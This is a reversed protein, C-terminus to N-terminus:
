KSRQPPLFEYMPKPCHHARQTAGLFSSIHNLLLDLVLSKNESSKNESFTFFTVQLVILIYSKTDYVLVNSVNSCMFHSGSLLISSTSKINGKDNCTQRTKATTPVFFFITSQNRIYMNLKLQVININKKPVRLKYKTVGIFALPQQKKLEYKTIRSIAYPKGVYLNNHSKKKKKKRKQLNYLDDTKM